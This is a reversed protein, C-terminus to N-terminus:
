YKYSYAYIKLYKYPSFNLVVAVLVLCKVLFQILVLSFMKYPDFDFNVINKLVLFIYNM